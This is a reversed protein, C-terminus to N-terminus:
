KIANKSGANVLSSLSLGHCLSVEQGCRGRKDHLLCAPEKARNRPWAPPANRNNSCCDRETKQSSFLEGAFDTRPESRPIVGFSVHSIRLLVLQVLRFIGFAPASRALFALFVDGFVRQAHGDHHLYLCRAACSQGDSSAGAALWSFQTQTLGQEWLARGRHHNSFSFINPKSCPNTEDPRARTLM